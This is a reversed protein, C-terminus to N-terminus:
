PSQVGSDPGSSSKGNQSTSQQNDTTLLFTALMAAGFGRLTEGDKKKIADELAVADEDSLRDIAPNQSDEFDLYQELMAQCESVALLDRLKGADAVRVKTKPDEVWAAPTPYPNRKSGKTGPDRMAIAIMQWAVERALEDEQSWAEPDLGVQQLRARAKGKAIQKESASLLRWVIATGDPLTGECTARPHQLRELLCAGQAERAEDIALERM